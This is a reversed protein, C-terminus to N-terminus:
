RVEIRLREGMRSLASILRNAEPQTLTLTMARWGTTSITVTKMPLEEPLPSPPTKLLRLMM